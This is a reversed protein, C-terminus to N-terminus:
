GGIKIMSRNELKSEEIQTYDPLLQGGLAKEKKSVNDQIFPVLDLGARFATLLDTETKSFLCNKLKGDATLRLRNCTSCFPQTMTSIIAFTGEHGPIKYKKATDHPADQLKIIDYEEQIRQVIHEYTFVKKSSWHNSTFPMFEIFRIHLPQEKTLAVFDNIESDNIGDIVVVNVKVSLNQKLCAQINQYVQHFQNRRTLLEFKNEHLTDLSINLSQIGADQLTNMYKHLLVGNTTLTLKIPLKALARMIDAADKRVLPEGGTLRIKRIGQEVFIKAIAVLEDFQMLKSHPTVDVEEDPM